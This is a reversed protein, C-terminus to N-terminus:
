AAESEAIAKRCEHCHNSGSSACLEPHLCHPRLVYKKALFAPPQFDTDPSSADGDGQSQEDAQHDTERPADGERIIQGSVVAAPERLYDGATDTAAAPEDRFQEINERARAPARTHSATVADDYAALYLDFIASQEEFKASDKDRKVVYAVIQGLATKDFGNGKAEAYIERIDGAISQQEEKLRLIREVFTRLQQGANNGVESM